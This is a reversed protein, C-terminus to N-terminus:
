SPHVGRLAYGAHYLLHGIREFLIVLDRSDDTACPNELISAGLNALAGGLATPHADGKLLTARLLALSDAIAPGHPTAKSKLTTEWEEILALASVMPLRDIGASLTELTDRLQDEIARPTTPTRM